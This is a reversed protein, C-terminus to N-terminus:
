ILKLPTSLDSSTIFLMTVNVLSLANNWGYVAVPFNFATIVGVIGLPNWMELLAHNPRESPIIKGEFMRSLGVAYDCIDVYEQVEGIGEPLIKGIFKSYITIDVKQVLKWIYYGNRTLGTQGFTWTKRELGCRNPSCNRREKTSPCWGLYGLGKSIWNCMPPLGWCKWSSSRCDTWWQSPLINSSGVCISSLKWM